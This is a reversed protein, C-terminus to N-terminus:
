ENKAGKGAALIKRGFFAFVFLPGVLWIANPIVYMQVVTSLPSHSVHAFGAYIDIIWKLISKGFQMSTAILAVLDSRQPLALQQPTQRQESPHLVFMAIALIANEVLCMTSVAWGLPNKVDAYDSDVAMYAHIAPFMFGLKGEPFSLPRLLIFACDFSIVVLQVWFWVRLWMPWSDPQAKAAAKASAM